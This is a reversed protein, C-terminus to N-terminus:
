RMIWSLLTCHSEPPTTAAEFDLRPECAEVIARLQRMTREQGSSLSFMAMDNVYMIKELWVPQTGPEPLLVEMVMLRAGTRMAPLLNCIIDKCIRDPWDHLVFRLFYADAVLPQPQHFNHSMFTINAHDDGAMMPNQNMVEALDQVTIHIHKYRAAIARAAHGGSGGM